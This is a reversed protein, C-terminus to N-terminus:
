ELLVGAVNFVYQVSFDNNVSPHYKVKDPPLLKGSALIKQQEAFLVKLTNQVETDGPQLRASLTQIQMQITKLHQQKQPTM